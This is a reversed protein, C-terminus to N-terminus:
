KKSKREFLVIDIAKIVGTVCGFILTIAAACLAIDLVSGDEATEYIHKFASPMLCMMVFVYCFVESLVARVDIVMFNKDKKKSAM